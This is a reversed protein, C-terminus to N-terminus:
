VTEIGLLLRLVMNAQHGACVAVRPAMLGQGPKAEAEGDGCLYLRRMPRRTTVRNASEYGAMGSAAVVVADTECLLAETLAAKAQPDDFAECVVPWGAFLTAANERTIRQQAAKVVLYPNVEAIQRQLAETKPLGLHEIRYHQRNLNTPEVLDFDVLLLEGVGSRALLMAIHSGLGGLGAIAVRGKQLREHVGPTHRAVMLRELEERRPPAGKRFFTLEDGEQLPHDTQLPYGGLLVMDAEPAILERVQWATACPLECAEGNVILRM